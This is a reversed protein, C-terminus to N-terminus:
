ECTVGVLPNALKALDSARLEIGARANGSSINVKEKKSIGADFVVLVPTKLLLPPIAGMRYGLADEIEKPSAFSLRKCNAVAAAKRADLRKDAALCALLHKGTKDRLLICKVMEDLPVNRERAAEECTFVEKQHELVRYPIGRSDLLETIKTKM